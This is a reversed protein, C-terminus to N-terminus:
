EADSTRYYINFNTTEENTVKPNILVVSDLANTTYRLSEIQYYMITGCEINSVFPINQHTVEITDRMLETYHLVYTTKDKYSLPVAMYNKAQNFVTDVNLTDAITAIGTVTAGNTFAVSKGTQSDLFDFRAVSQTTLSCDSEGCGVMLNCLMLLVTTFITTKRM